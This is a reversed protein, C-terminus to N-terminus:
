KRVFSYFGRFDRALDMVLVPTAFPALAWVLAGIIDHSVVTLPPVVIFPVYKPSPIANLSLWVL